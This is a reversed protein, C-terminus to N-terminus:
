KETKSEEKEKVEVEREGDKQADRNTLTHRDYGTAGM